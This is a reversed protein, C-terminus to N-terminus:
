KYSERSRMWRPFPQEKPFRFPPRRPTITEQNVWSGKSTPNFPIYKMGSSGQDLQMISQSRTLEDVAEFTAPGDSDNGMLTSFDGTKNEDFTDYDSNLIEERKSEENIQFFIESRTMPMRQSIRKESPLYKTFVPFKRQPRKEILEGYSDLWDYKYDFFLGLRKFAARFMERYKIYHPEEDYRLNRVDNLYDMFEYPLGRCLDEVSIGSKAELIMSYQQKTNRANIGMWPLSGKMLYIWVYALSEMDDRRTQRVGKLANISAYRPTGTLQKKDEYPIHVHTDPDRYKRSLGYDIIYLQNKKNDIGFLFNDPKIDNHIFNKMHMYQVASIMQDTLMLVTKVSLQQGCLTFLEELNKGLLDMVLISNHSDKAFYYTKPVYPFGQLINFLKAEFNLQPYTTKNNEFKFALKKGNNTNKGNYISSFSGTAIKDEILYSNGIIRNM